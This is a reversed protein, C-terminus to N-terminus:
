TDNRPQLYLLIVRKKKVVTGDANGPFGSSDM